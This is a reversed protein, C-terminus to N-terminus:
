SVVICFFDINQLKALLRTGKSWTVVYTRRYHGKIRSTGIKLQNEQLYIKYCGNIHVLVTLSAKQQAVVTLTEGVRVEGERELLSEREARSQFYM